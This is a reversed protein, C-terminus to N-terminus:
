PRPADLLALLADEDPHQAVAVSAAGRAKLPEACDESLCLHRLRLVTDGLGAADALALTLDVSRRSYHLAADLRGDRLAERATPPWDSVAEAAYTELVAVDYGAAALAEELVPKRDRGALYLLRAPRPLTLRLLDALGAADGAGIRVDRFGAARAAEATRRGVAYVPRSRDLSADADLFAHHSTAAIAQWTGPPLSTPQARVVTVPALVAEHGLKALEAATRQADDEARTVLVRLPRTM